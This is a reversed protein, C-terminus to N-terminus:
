RLKIATLEVARNQRQDFLAFRKNLHRQKILGHHQSNVFIVRPRVALAHRHRVQGTFLQQHQFVAVAQAILRHTKAKFRAGIFIRM